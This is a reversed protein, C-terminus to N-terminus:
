LLQIIHIYIDNKRLFFRTLNDSKVTEITTKKTTM